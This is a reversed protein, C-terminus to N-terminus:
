KAEAYGKVDRKHIAVSHHRDIDWFWWDDSPDYQQWVPARRFPTLHTKFTDAVYQKALELTQFVGELGTGEDVCEDLVVYVTM